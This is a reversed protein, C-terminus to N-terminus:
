RRNLYLPNSRSGSKPVGEVFDGARRVAAGTLMRLQCFYSIHPKSIVVPAKQVAPDM